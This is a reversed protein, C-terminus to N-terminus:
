GLNRGNNELNELLKNFVLIDM